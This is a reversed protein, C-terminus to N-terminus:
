LPELDIKLPNDGAKLTIQQRNTKWPGTAIVLVEVTGAPLASFVSQGQADTFGVVSGIRKGGPQPIPTVRVEAQESPKKGGRVVITLNSTKAKEDVRTSPAESEGKGAGPSPATKLPEANKKPTQGAKDDVAFLVEPAACLTVLCFMPLLWYRQVHHRAGGTGHERSM